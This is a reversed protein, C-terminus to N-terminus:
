IWLGIWIIPCLRISVQCFYWVGMWDLVLRITCRGIWTWAFLWTSVHCVIVGRRLAWLAVSTHYRTKRSFSQKMRNKYIWLGTKIVPWLRTSVQCVNPFADREELCWSMCRGIWTVPLLRTSVHRVIVDRRLAWLAVATCVRNKYFILKITNKWIWLGTWIIPCLRTSVQCVDSLIGWVVLVRRM